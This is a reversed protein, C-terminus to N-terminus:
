RRRKGGTHFRAPGGPPKGGATQPVPRPKIRAKDLEINIELMSTDGENGLSVKIVEDKVEVYRRVVDLLEQQLMPLFDPAERNVREHALVIQLREKAVSASQQDRRARLFDFIGM